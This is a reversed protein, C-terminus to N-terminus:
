CPSSGNHDVDFSTDSIFDYDWPTPLNKVHTECTQSPWPVWSGDSKKLQLNPFVANMGAQGWRELEAQPIATGWSTSYPSSQTEHYGGGDLFDIYMHWETGGGPASSSSIKLADDTGVAIGSTPQVFKDALEGCTVVRETFVFWQKQSMAQSQPTADKWHLATGIELQKCGLQPSLHATRVVSSGSDSGTTNPCDFDLDNNNAEARVLDGYRFPYSTGGKHTAANIFFQENNGCQTAQAAPGSLVGVALLVLSVLIGLRRQLRYGWTQMM